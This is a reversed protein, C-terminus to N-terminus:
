VVHTSDAPFSFPELHPGPVFGSHFTNLHQPTFTGESM